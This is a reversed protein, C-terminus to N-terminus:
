WRYGDYDARIHGIKRRPTKGFAHEAYELDEFVKPFPCETKLRELINGQM